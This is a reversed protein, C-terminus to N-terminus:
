NRYTVTVPKDEQKETASLVNGETTAAAFVKEEAILEEVLVIKSQIKEAEALIAAKKKELDAKKEVLKNLM